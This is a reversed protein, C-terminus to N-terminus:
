SILKWFSRVLGLRAIQKFCYLRIENWMSYIIQQQLPEFKAYSSSKRYKEIERGRYCTERTRELLGMNLLTFRTGYGLFDCTDWIWSIWVQGTYFLVNCTYWIWSREFTDLIWSHECMDHVMDLFTFRTRYVLFNCKEWISLFTLRTGYGLFDCKYWIWSRWFNVMDLFMWIHGIDLHTWVHIM